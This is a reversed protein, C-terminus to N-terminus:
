NEEDRRRLKDTAVPVTFFFTSGQGLVSELWMRGGHLEILSRAINLGLGTGGIRRTNTNDVRYFREGIRPIDEPAIGIGEDRVSVLVWSGDPHDNPLVDRPVKGGIEQVTLEIEGGNPSYKIANTVLNFLVQKIKDRDVYVAPLPDAMHILLRHYELPGLQNTLEAIIQRLEVIWCNIKMRGSELRSISLLDDVIGSLHEAQDYVTQIFRKQEDPAFDRALLLETYGLISTLPTRLEHSVISVFENKVQDLERERTIDRIAWLRGTIQHLSDRTPVSLVHIEQKPDNLRVNFMQVDDPAHQGENCFAVLQDPDTLRPLLAEVLDLSVYVPGDREGNELLGWTTAWAPNTRLVRGSTDLLAVGMPLSVFVQGLHNSQELVDQYKMARYLPRAARECVMSVFGLEQEGFAASRPSDLTIVALAVGELVIPAALEARVNAEMPRLDAEQTVDRVLLARGSRAARGALGVDWSIREQHASLADTAFAGSSYGEYVQMVLEGREYDVLCISGAEACTEDLTWRLLHTLLTHLPVPEELEYELASFFPTRTALDTQSANSVPRTLMQVNAESSALLRESEAVIAIALQPLLGTVFEQVPQGLDDTGDARLELVGWLRKGWVIPAGLYVHPATLQRLHDRVGDGPSEPDPTVSQRVITQGMAVQRTLGNDWPYSRTGPSYFHQRQAGPRVSGFWCTLRADRYRIGTRFVKFLDELRSLLSRGDQLVRSAEALVTLLETSSFVSSLMLHMDTHDLAYDM